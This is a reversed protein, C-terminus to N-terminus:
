RDARRPHQDAGRRAGQLADADIADYGVSMLSIIKIQPLKDLFAGDIKTHGQTAMGTVTKPLAALAADKEKAQWVRHVTFEKELWEEVLPMFPVLAVVEPKQATM